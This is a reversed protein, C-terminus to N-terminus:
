YIVIPSFMMSFEIDRIRENTADITLNSMQILFQQKTNQDDSTDIKVIHINVNIDQRLRPENNLVDLKINSTMETAWGSSTVEINFDDMWLACGYNRDFKYAGYYSKLILDINEYISMEETVKRSKIGKTINEASIPIHINMM